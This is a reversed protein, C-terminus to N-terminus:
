PVVGANEPRPPPGNAAEAPVDIDKTSDADPLDATTEYRAFLVTSTVDPGAGAPPTPDIGEVAIKVPGGKTGKGGIAATDYLGDKINAYGAPGTNGKAGDPMIYVKGAPVPQGKFTVKGSLRHNGDGGCGVALGGLVVLAARFLFAVSCRRSPM